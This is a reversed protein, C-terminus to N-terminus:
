GKGENREKSEASFAALWAGIEPQTMASGMICLGAAGAHRIEEAHAPTIGGIAYVPLSVSRCVQRLFAIGRPPLDPKCATAYVHGATIYTCGLAAAEQADSVSHCSTGLIRFNRRAAQTMQRLLPLPMHLADAGLAQATEPFTHLICRTGAQSCIELAQQALARYAPEPLDKERLLVAAPHCAALQALRTLFDGKCLTRNTVCIVDSM